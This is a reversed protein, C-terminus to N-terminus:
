QGPVQGPWEMRRAAFAAAEKSEYRAILSLALDIGATIGASSIFNAGDIVVRPGKVVTATPYLRALAEVQATHTTVKRKNLLGAKGLIFAGTSISAMVEATDTAKQLFEMMHLPLNEKRAGPGGPVVIIDAERAQALSKDPLVCLGHSCQVTSRHEAITEVHFVAKDSWKGDIVRRCSALVEYPGCFDLEDIGDYLLVDVTKM